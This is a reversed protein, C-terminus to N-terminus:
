ALAAALEEATGLRQEPRAAIARGIVARAEETLGSARAVLESSIGREGIELLMAADGRAESLSGGGLALYLLTAALAYVDAAQGPRAEGRAVEPAVFPLTGRDDTDLAPDM